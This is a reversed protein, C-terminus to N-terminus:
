FRDRIRRQRLAVAASFVTGILAALGASPAARTTTAPSTPDGDRIALVFLGPVMYDGEDRLAISNQGAVLHPGVATSNMALDAYPKGDFLSRFAHGNVILTNEGKNGGPVVGMLTASGGPPVAPLSGFDIRTTAADASVDGTAYIMDAGEAVWYQAGGGGGDYTYLLVAGPFVIGADPATHTVTLTLLASARVPETVDYVLLGAPYDYPPTGKRDSYSRAPTLVAGGAETKVSPAVGTTGSHSWTWFLYVTANRISAGAPLSIPYTVTYTGGPPIEGSYRSDGPTLVLDGTVQGQDMVGLTGGTYDAAASPALLAFALLLVLGRIASSATM